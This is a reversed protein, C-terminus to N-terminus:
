SACAPNPPGAHGVKLDVFEFKAWSVAVEIGAVPKGMSMQKEYEGAFNVTVDGNPTWALDIQMPANLDAPAYGQGGSDADLVKEIWVWANLKYADTPAKIVAALSPSKEDAVENHKLSTLRVKAVPAWKDSHYAKDFKVTLSARNAGCPLEKAWTESKGRVDDFVISHPAFGLVPAFPAMETDAVAQGVCTLLFLAVVSPHRPM